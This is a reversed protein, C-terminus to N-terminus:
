SACETCRGDGGPKFSFWPGPRGCSSCNTRARDDAVGNAILVAQDYQPDLVLAHAGHHCYSCRAGLGYGRNLIRRECGCACKCRSKWIPKARTM